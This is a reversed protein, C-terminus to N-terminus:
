ILVRKFVYFVCGGPIVFSSVLEWGADGLNDLAIYVASNDATASLRARVTNYEWRM